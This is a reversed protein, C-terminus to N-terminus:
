APPWTPKLWSVDGALRGAGCRAWRSRRFRERVPVRHLPHRQRPLHLDRLQGGAAQRGGPPYLEPLRGRDPGWRRLVAPPLTPFRLYPPLLCAVPRPTHPSHPAPTPTSGPPIPTKGCGRAELPVRTPRARHPCRGEAPRHQGQLRRRSSCPSLTVGEPSAAWPGGTRLGAASPSPAALCEGPLHRSIIDTTEIARTMSSHVIKNFKLGLSALRLGTLEAQERGQLHFVGSFEKNSCGRKQKCIGWDKGLVM